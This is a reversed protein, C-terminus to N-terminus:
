DSSAGGVGEDEKCKGRGVGSKRDWSPSNRECVGCAGCVCVGCVSCGGGTGCVSCVGRVCRTDMCAGCVGCMGCMGCADCAGCVGFVDIVDFVGVTSCTDGVGYGGCVDDDGRGERDVGVSCGVGGDEIKGDGTRSRARGSDDRCGLTACGGDM